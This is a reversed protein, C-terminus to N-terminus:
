ETPIVIWSLTEEDWQYAPELWFEPQEPTYPNVPAAVPPQWVCTDEGLTWSPFPQPAYFADRSIDYFMGPTAYNKRMPTKGNNHQGAYTNVSTQIWTGGLLSQCFAIGKAESENGNEDLLENDSVVIVQRVVNNEDLEAFHAM